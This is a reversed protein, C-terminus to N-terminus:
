SWYWYMLPKLDSQQVDLGIYRLLYHATLAWSEVHINLSPVNWGFKLLKRKHDLALKHRAITQKQKSNLPKQRVKNVMRLMRADMSQDDVLDVSRLREYGASFYRDGLHVTLAWLWTDLAAGDVVFGLVNPCGYESNWAILDSLPRSRPSPPQRWALVADLLQEAVVRPEDIDGEPVIQRVRIALEDASGPVTFFSPQNAREIIHERIISQQMGRYAREWAFDEHRIIPLPVRLEDGMRWWDIGYAAALDLPAHAPISFRSDVIDGDKTTVLDDIGLLLKFHPSLGM